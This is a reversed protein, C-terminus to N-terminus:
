TPEYRMAGVVNGETDVLFALEGVGDIITPAMLVRGGAAEAAALVERVDDVAVTAEMGITPTGRLLERRPQLAAIPHGPETSGTHVHFFGPPGWASFTWGFVAGYFHRARDVDDANIALHAIPSPM